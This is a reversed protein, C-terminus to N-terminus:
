GPMGAPHGTKRLSSETLKLNLYGQMDGVPFLFGIQPGIGIVQSQFCGVRDGSGSDCGLEKYVYGENEASSGTMAHERGQYAERTGSIRFQAAESWGEFLQKQLLRGFVTKAYGISARSM